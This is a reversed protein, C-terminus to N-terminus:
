QSRGAMSAAVFRLKAMSGIDVNQLECKVVRLIKWTGRSAIVLRPSMYTRGDMGRVYM